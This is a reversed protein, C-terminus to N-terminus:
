RKLAGLPLLLFFAGAAACVIAPGSPIDWALSAHLGAVVAVIGLGMGGMAMGSPSRALQRAAAAPIILLSTMLLVGVVQLSVAVIVTMLGMLVCHTRFGCVGEARALDEHLTMLVLSPWHWLLLGLALLSGGGIWWLEEERVTLIDGFLYAHVDLDPRDLLSIAVLGLSLASHALIGLLTDTALLKKQQLWLLLVAFLACVAVVGPTVGAGSMLGLAVGLLASHALADGFYAMRRWVAFCGLPAAVAAVMVGALLARLFFPETLPMTM